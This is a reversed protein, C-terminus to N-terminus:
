AKRDKRVSSVSNVIEAIRLAADAPIDASLEIHALGGGPFDLTMDNGDCRRTAQPADNPMDPPLFRDIPEGITAAVRALLKISPVVKQRAWASVVDQGINAHRAFDAQSWQRERCITKITASVHAKQRETSGVTM